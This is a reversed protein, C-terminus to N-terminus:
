QIKLQPTLNITHLLKARIKPCDPLDLQTLNGPLKALSRTYRSWRSFTLIQLNGPLKDLEQNFWKGLELRTLNILETLNLKQNFESDTDFSLTELSRPLLKSIPHAFKVGFNVYVLNECGLLLNGISHSYNHGPFFYRLSKPLRNIRTVFEDGLFLHTLTDSSGPNDFMNDINQNFKSEPTFILRTLPNGHIKLHTICDPVDFWTIQNHSCNLHTLTLDLTWLDLDTIKNHSCDIHTLDPYQTFRIMGSANTNAINLKHNKVM